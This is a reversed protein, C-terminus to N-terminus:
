LSEFSCQSPAVEAATQCAPGPEDVLRTLVWFYRCGKGANLRSLREVERAADQESWLVKTVSIREELPVELGDYTDVRVIAFVHRLKSHPTV